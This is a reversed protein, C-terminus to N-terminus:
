WISTKIVLCCKVESKDSGSKIIEKFDYNGRSDQYPTETGLKCFYGNALMEKQRKIAKRYYDDNARELELINTYFVVSQKACIEVIKTAITEDRFMKSEDFHIRLTKCDRGVQMIKEFIDWDRHSIVGLIDESTTKISNQGLDLALIASNKRFHRLSWSFAFQLVDNIRSGLTSREILFEACKKNGYIVAAAIHYCEAGLTVANQLLYQLVELSTEHSSKLVALIPTDAKDFWPLDVTRGFMSGRLIKLSDEFILAYGQVSSPDFNAGYTFLLKIMELDGNECAAILPTKISEDGVSVPNMCAGSNILFNILGVSKAIVAETLITTNNVHVNICEPTERVIKEVLAVFGMQIASVARFVAVEPETKIAPVPLPEGMLEEDSFPDYFDEVVPAEDEIDYESM